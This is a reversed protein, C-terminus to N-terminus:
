SRRPVLPAAVGARRSVQRLEGSWQGHAFLMRRAESIEALCQSYLLEKAQRGLAESASWGYLREARPNWFTIRDDLNLVIIADQAAQILAAQERLREETRKRETIDMMSGIMRM